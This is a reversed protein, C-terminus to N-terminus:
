ARKYRRTALVAGLGLGLMVFSAPEPIPTVDVVGSFSATLSGTSAYNALVTQYPESFQATFDGIWDSAGDSTVGTFVWQASSQIATPPNDNIFTFPSGNPPNAPTCTQGVAPTPLSCGAAGGTGPSVFDILLSPLGPAVDFSIFPASAFLVGVPEAATTLDDATNQGNEGSFSGAGASLSFMQALFPSIDSNWDIVTPTVTITGTMNFSGSLPSALASGAMGGLVLVACLFTNRSM